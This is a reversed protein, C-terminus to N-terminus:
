QGSARQLRDRIEILRSQSSVPSRPQPVETNPWNPLDNCPCLEPPMGVTKIPVPMECRGCPSVDWGPTLLQAITEQTGELYCDGSEPSIIKQWCSEFEESYRDGQIVPQPLLAEKGNHILVKKGLQFWYAIYQRVQHKSAM